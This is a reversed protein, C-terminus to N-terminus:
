DRREGSVREKNPRSDRAGASSTALRTGSARGGVGAKRGDRRITAEKAAATTTEDGEDDGDNEM